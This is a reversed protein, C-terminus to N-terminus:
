RGGRLARMRTAPRLPVAVIMACSTFMRSPPKMVACSKWRPWVMACIMHPPSTSAPETTSSSQSRRRSRSAKTPRISCGLVWSRMMAIICVPLGARLQAGASSCGHGTLDLVGIDDRGPAGRDALRRLAHEAVDPRVVQQDMGNARHEGVHGREIRRDDLVGDDAARDRLGLLA